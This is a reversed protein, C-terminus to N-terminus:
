ADGRVDVRWQHRDVETVAFNIPLFSNIVEMNTLSHGSLKGTVFAGTKALAMPLLLQDALHEGVPIGSQDWQRWETFAADVVADAHVGRSGFGTFIETLGDACEVDMLVVNGPGCERPQQEISVEDPRWKTRSILRAAEREGIDAPLAGLLIRGRRHVVEGRKLIEIRGLGHPAPDISVIVRGGGNPYFGVRELRADVKAGMRNIWPLFVRQVFDFPPAFPNHTGGVLEITSPAAAVLLPPLITQLVLTTSGAGGTDFRYAGPKVAGPRFELESSNLEDGALSAGCLEAAARVATLHQRMLGPKQRNARIRVVRFPEGTIMSLALSSRLIQGGGEGQSGDLEIM